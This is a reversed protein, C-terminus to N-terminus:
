EGEWECGCFTGGYHGSYDPHYVFGEGRTGPAAPGIVDKAVKYYRCRKARDKQRHWRRNAENCVEQVGQEKGSMYAYRLLDDLTGEAPSSEGHLARMLREGYTM